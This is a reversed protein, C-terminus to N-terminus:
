SKVMELGMASAGAGKRKPPTTRSALKATLRAGRKGKKKGKLSNVRERVLRLLDIEWKTDWCEMAGGFGVVLNEGKVGGVSCYDRVYANQGKSGKGGGMKELM